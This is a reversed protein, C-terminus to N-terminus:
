GKGSKGGHSNGHSRDSNSHDDDSDDHDHDGREDLSDDEERAFQRDDTKERHKHHGKGRAKIHGAGIKHEHADTAPEAASRKRDVAGSSKPAPSAETATRSVRKGLVRDKVPSSTPTGAVETVPPLVVPQASPGTEPATPTVGRTTDDPDFATRFALTSFTLLTGAVLAALGVHALSALRGPGTVQEEDMGLPEGGKSTTRSSKANLDSRETVM